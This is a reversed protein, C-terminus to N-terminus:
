ISAREFDFSMSVVSNINPQEAIPLINTALDYFVINLQLKFFNTFITLNKRNPAQARISLQPGLRMSRTCVLQSDFFLNRLHADSMSM